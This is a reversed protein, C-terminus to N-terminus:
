RGDPVVPLPEISVNAIVAANSARRILYRGGRMAHVTVPTAPDTISGYVIRVVGKGKAEEFFEGWTTRKVQGPAIMGENEKQPLYRRAFEDLTLWGIRADTVLEIYGDRAVVRRVRHGDFLMAESWYPPLADAMAEARDKDTLEGAAYGRKM